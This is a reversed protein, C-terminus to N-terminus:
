RIVTAIATHTQEGCVTSEAKLRIPYKGSAVTNGQSNRGNWLDELVIKRRSELTGFSKEPVLEQGIINVVKERKVRALHMNLDKDIVLLAIKGDVSTTVENDFPNPFIAARRYFFEFELCEAAFLPSTATMALAILLGRALARSRFRIRPEVSMLTQAPM